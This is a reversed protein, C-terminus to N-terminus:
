QRTGTITWSSQCPTQATCAGATRHRYVISGFFEDASTFTLNVTTWDTMTCSRVVTQVHDSEGNAELSNADASWSGTWDTGMAFGSANIDIRYTGNYDTPLNCGNFSEAAVVDFSGSPVQLPPNPNTVQTPSEDGGCATLSLTVLVLLIARTASAVGTSWRIKKGFLYM